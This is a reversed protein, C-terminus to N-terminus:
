DLRQFWFVSLGDEATSVVPEVHWRDVLGQDTRVVPRPRLGLTPAPTRDPCAFGEQGCAWLVEPRVEDPEDDVLAVRRVPDGTTEIHAERYLSFIREPVDVPEVTEVTRPVATWLLALAEREGSRSLVSPLEAAAAVALSVIVAVAVLEASSRARGVPERDDILHEVRAVLSGQPMLAACAVQPRGAEIVKLLGSALAAPRRTAEVALSDAAIEREAHLQHIAWGGGPVFWFADRVLGVALAMLNDRRRVHALEHAIVGELEQPDLAAILAADIVLVPRRLGVITAGGQLDDVIALPPAAVRMRHAVRRVTAHVPGPAARGERFRRRTERQTVVVRCTRVAIRLLAVGSWAGLLIPAALPAFTLYTDRVPVPLADVADVPVWLAPLALEAWFLALVSGLALMPVLATIARVRPVRLGARLLLRALLAAAVSAIVVRLAISETPLSLLLGTDTM